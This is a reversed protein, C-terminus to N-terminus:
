AAKTMPAVGLVVIVTGAALVVPATFTVTVGASTQNTLTPVLALGPMASCAADVNYSDVLAGTSDTMPTSWTIAVSVQAGLLTLGITAVGIRFRKAATAAGSQATALAEAARADAAAAQARIASLQDDDQQGLRPM